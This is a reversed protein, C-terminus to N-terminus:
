SKQAGMPGVIPLTDRIAGIEVSELEAHDIVGPQVLAPGMVVKRSLKARSPFKREEVPGVEVKQGFRALQKALCSWSGYHEKLPCWLGKTWCTGVDLLGDSFIRFRGFRDIPFEILISRIELNAIKVMKRFNTSQVELGWSSSSGVSIKVGNETRYMTVVGKAPDSVLLVLITDDEGMPHWYSTM